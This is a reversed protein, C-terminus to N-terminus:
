VLRLFFAKGFAGKLDGTGVVPSGRFTGLAQKFKSNDKFALDIEAAKRRWVPDQLPNTASKRSRSGRRVVM